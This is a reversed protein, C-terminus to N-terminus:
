KYLIKNKTHVNKNITYLNPIEQLPSLTLASFTQILMHM